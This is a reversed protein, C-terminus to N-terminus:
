KGKQEVLIKTGDQDDVVNSTSTSVINDGTTTIRANPEFKEDEPLSSVSVQSTDQEGSHWSESGYPKGVEHFSIHPPM